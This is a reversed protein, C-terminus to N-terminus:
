ECVQFEVTGSSAGFRKKTYEEMDILFNNNGLNRTCCGDCDDDNCEDYVTAVIEKDGQRIRVKRMGLWGWDKMHVSVINHEKVWTRSKKQDLGYFQGAWTCGNYQICEESGPEPYSTYYTLSAKYWPTGCDASDHTHDTRHHAKKAKALHTGSKRKKTVDFAVSDVMKYTNKYFLRAEYEGPSNIKEVGLLGSKVEELPWSVVNRWNNGSSKRYVGMWYKKHHSLGVVQIFIDEGTQYTYKETDIYADEVQHDERHVVPSPKKQRETVDFEVSDVLRYTNKYFLRAEYEGPTNIKEVELLGNRVSELPWSVVNRWHNGSPKRYVGLWYHKHASLEEVQIYIKEGTKYDYKPTDIYAAFLNISGLFLFFLMCGFSKGCCLRNM